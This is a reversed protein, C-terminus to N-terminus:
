NYINFSYIGNEVVTPAAPHPLAHGISTKVPIHVSIVGKKRTFTAPSLISKLASADVFRSTNIHDGLLHTVNMHFSFRSGDFEVIFVRSRGNSNVALSQLDLKKHGTSEARHLAPDDAVRLSYHEPSVSFTNNSFRRIENYYLRHSNDDESKFNDYLVMSLPLHKTFHAQLKKDVNNIIKDVRTSDVSPAITNFFGKKSIAQLLLGASKMEEAPVNVPKAPFGPVFSTTSTISVGELEKRTKSVLSLLSVVSPQLYEHVSLCHNSSYFISQSVM